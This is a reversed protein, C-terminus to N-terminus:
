HLACNTLSKIPQYRKIDKKLDFCIPILPKLIGLAALNRRVVTLTRWVLKGQFTYKQINVSLINLQCVFVSRGQLAYKIARNNSKFLVFIFTGQLAFNIALNENIEVSLVFFCYCPLRGRFALGPQIYGVQFTM